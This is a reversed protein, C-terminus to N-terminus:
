AWFHKIKGQNQNIIWQKSWRYSTRIWLNEKKRKFIITIYKSKTIYLKRPLEAPLSDVLLAPSGQKSEQTLFLGQSLSLSGVWTNKSKGSSESLLSDAQLEPSRGPNSGQIPFIRQLLSRSGVGTNKGPFNWPCLLRALQMNWSTVFLRGRSKTRSKSKWKISVYNM